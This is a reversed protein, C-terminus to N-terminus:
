NREKSSHAPVGDLLRKKRSQYESAQQSRYGKIEVIPTLNVTLAVPEGIKRELLEEVLMVQKTTIDGEQGHVNVIVAVPKAYVDTNINAIALKQFTYTGTRLLESLEQEVVKRQRIALLTFTLPIALLLISIGPFILSKLSKRFQSLRILLFALVGTFLISVLNTLFLLSAGLYIEPKLHALGIGVVCLPPILSISVAVGFLAGGIDRRVKAYGALFGTALAVFLDLLSPRTRALTEASIGLTTFPLSLLFSVLVALLIGSILTITSRFVFPVNRTLSSFSIGLIPEMLPAILMAGIVVATSNLLLGFTSIVTALFLLVYFDTHPRSSINLAKYVEEYSFNHDQFSSM